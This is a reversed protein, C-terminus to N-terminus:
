PPSPRSTVPVSDLGLQFGAPGTRGRRFGSGRAALPGVGAHTYSLGLGNLRYLNQVGQVSSVPTHDLWLQELSQVAFAPSVDTLKQCGKLELQQLMEMNEIGELSDIPQSVLVLGEPRDPRLLHRLDRISEM